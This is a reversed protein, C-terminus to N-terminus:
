RGACLGRTIACDIKVGGVSVPLRYFAATLTKREGNVEVVAEARRVAGRVDDRSENLALLKVTASTGDCLEITQTEGVSLDVTRLLPAITETAFSLAPAAVM